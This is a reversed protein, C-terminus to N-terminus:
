RVLALHISGYVHGGDGPRFETSRRVLLYQAMLAGVRVQAGAELDLVWPLRSIELAGAPPASDLFANYLVYRADARLIMAARVGLPARAAPSEGVLSPPNPEVVWLPNRLSGYTLTLGSEVHDFVNGAAAGGSVLLRAPYRGLARETLTRDNRWFVNAALRDALQLDWGRPRRVGVLRHFATQIEGAFAHPGLVGVHVRVLHSRAVDGARWERGLYLWGGYPRDRLILTDVSIDSPTYMNQGLVWRRAVAVGVGPRPADWAGPLVESSLQLGQTYFRDGQGAFFDNDETLRVSRVALAGRPLAAALTCALLVARAVRPFARRPRSRPM